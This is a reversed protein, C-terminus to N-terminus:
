PTVAELWRPDIPLYLGEHAGVLRVMQWGDPMAGAESYIVGETGAGVTVDTFRYPDELRITGLNEVGAAVRVLAGPEFTTM